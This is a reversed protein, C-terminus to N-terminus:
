GSMSRELQLRVVNFREIFRALSTEADTADLGNAKLEDVLRTQQRVAAAAESVRRTVAEPTAELGVDIPDIVRM